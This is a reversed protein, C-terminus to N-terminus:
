AGSYAVAGFNRKWNAPVLADIRSAPHTAVRTLVDTLYRQPDVEAQKCSEILTYITAAARGGRPSGAFLWNRRGVAVPRIAVECANNHIPVRGDELFVRLHDHQNEVYKCAEGSPAPSTRRVSTVAYSSASALREGRACITPGPEGRSEM